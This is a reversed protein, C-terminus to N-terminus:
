VKKIGTAYRSATKIAEQATLKQWQNIVPVYINRVGAMYMLVACRLCTFERERRLYPENSKGFGAIYFKCDGLRRVGLRRVVEWVAFEEAHACAGIMSETRSQISLRICEPECLYNLPDLRKNTEAVIIDDNYIVVCGFKMKQCNSDLAVEFCSRYIHDEFLRNEGTLLKEVNLRLIIYRKRTFVNSLLSQRTRPEGISIECNKPFQCRTLDIETGDPLRNWYHSGTFKENDDQFRYMGRLIEGGCFDQIVLSTVACQGWAPNQKSWKKQDFTTERSWCKKILRKIEQIKFTRDNM